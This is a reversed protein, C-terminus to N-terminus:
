RLNQINIGAQKSLSASEKETALGNNRLFDIEGKVMNSVEAPLMGLLGSVASAVGWTTSAGSQFVKDSYHSEVQGRANAISSM